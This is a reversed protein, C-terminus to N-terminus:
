IRKLIRGVSGRSIEKVIGRRVAEDALEQQSWHTIPPGGEVKDPRECAMAIIQCIVEPTYKAPAGCRPEDALREAFEDRCTPRELM